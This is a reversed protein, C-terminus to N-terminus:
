IVLYKSLGGDDLGNIGFKEIFHLADSYRAYFGVCRCREGSKEPVTTVTYIFEKTQAFERTELLTNHSYLVEYKPSDESM